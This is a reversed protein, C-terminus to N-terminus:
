KRIVIRKTTRVNNASLHLLYTGNAADSLDLTFEKASIKESYILRGSLDTVQANHEKNLFDLLQINFIGSSPNPFLNFAIFNQEDLGILSNITYNGSTTCGSLDTVTVSYVGAALGSIDETSATFGGPGTWSFTFGPTGGFASLNISGNNPATEPSM